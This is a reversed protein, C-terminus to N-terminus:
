RSHSETAVVSLRPLTMPPLGSFLDLRTNFHVDPTRPSPHLQHGHRGPQLTFSSPRCRCHLWLPPVLCRRTAQPRSRATALPEPLLDGLHQGVPLPQHPLARRQLTASTFLSALLPSHLLLLSPRRRSSAMGRPILGVVCPVHATRRM